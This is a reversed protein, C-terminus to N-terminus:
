DKQLKLFERIMPRSYAIDTITVIGVLKDNSLVPLKKIKYEKIIGLVTEISDYPHVTKIDSSMIEKVKTKEPDRRMCIIREVFDRETVIGVIQDNETVILCGVKCECFKNCADLITVNADITVIKNSMIDKVFM